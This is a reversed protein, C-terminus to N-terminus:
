TMAPRYMFRVANAPNSNISPNYDRLLHEEALYSNLLIAVHM